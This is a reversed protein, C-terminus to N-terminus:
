CSAAGTCYRALPHMRAKLRGCLKCPVGRNILFVLLGSGVLAWFVLGVWAYGTLGDLGYTVYALLAFLLASGFGVLIPFM